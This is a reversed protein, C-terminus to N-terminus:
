CVGDELNIRDIGLLRTETVACIDLACKRFNSVLEEMIVEQRLTKVNWNGIKIATKASIFRNVSRSIRLVGQGSLAQVTNPAMNEDGSNM